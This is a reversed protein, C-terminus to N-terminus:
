EQCLLRSFRRDRSKEMAACKVQLENISSADSTKLGDTAPSTATDCSEKLRWVSRM